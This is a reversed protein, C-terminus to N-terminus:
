QAEFSKLTEPAEEKGFAYDQNARNHTLPLGKVWLTRLMMCLHGLGAPKKEPPQATMASSLLLPVSSAAKYQAQVKMRRGQCPRWHSELIEPPPQEWQQRSISPVASTRCVLSQDKGLFWNGMWLGTVSQLIFSHFYIVYNSLVIDGMTKWLFYM